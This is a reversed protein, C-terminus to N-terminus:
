AQAAIPPARSFHSEQVTDHIRHIETFDIFIAIQEVPNLINNIFSLVESFDSQSQSEWICAPCDDHFSFDEEHNHFASSFSSIVFYLLLFPFLYKQLNRRNYKIMM